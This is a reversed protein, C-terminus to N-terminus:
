SPKHSTSMLHAAHPVSALTLPIVINPKIKLLHQNNQPDHSFNCHHEMFFEFGLLSSNLNVHNKPIYFKHHIIKDQINIKAM